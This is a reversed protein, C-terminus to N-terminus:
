TCAFIVHKVTYTHRRIRTAPYLNSTRSVQLNYRPSMIVIWKHWPRSTRIGKYGAVSPRCYVLFMNFWQIFPKNLIATSPSLHICSTDPLMYGPTFAANLVLMLFLWYSLDTLNDHQSIYCLRLKWVEDKQVRITDIAPEAFQQDKAPDDVLSPDAINQVCVCVTQICYM